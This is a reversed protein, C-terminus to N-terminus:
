RMEWGSLTVSRKGRKDTLRLRLTGAAGKPLELGLTCLTTARARLRTAHCRHNVAVRRKRGNDHVWARFSGLVLTPRSRNQVNVVLYVHRGVHIQTVARLVIFDSRVPVVSPTRKKVGLEHIQELVYTQALKAAKRDLEGYLREYKERYPAVKEAVKKRIYASEQERDARVIHVQSDGNKPVSVFRITITITETQIISTVARPLRPSTLSYAIYQGQREYAVFREDPPTVMRIKEDIRVIAANSASLKVSFEATYGKVLCQKSTAGTYTCHTAAPGATADPAAFARGNAVLMLVFVGSITTVHKM